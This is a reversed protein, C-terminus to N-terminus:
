KCNTNRHSIPVFVGEFGREKIVSCWHAQAASGSKGFSKKFNSSFALMVVPVPFDFSPVITVPNQAVYDDWYATLLDIYKQRGKDTQFLKIEAVMPKRLHWERCAQLWADLTPLTESGAKKLYLTQIEALTLDKINLRSFKVTKGIRKKIEASSEIAKIAAASKVTDITRTFGDDHQLVLEGDYTEHVDFELYEFRPDDQIPAFGEFGILSAQLVLLSNEPLSTFYDAGARHGINGAFTTSAFLLAAIFPIKKIHKM